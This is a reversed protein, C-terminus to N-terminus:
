EIDEAGWLKNRGNRPCGGIKLAGMVRTGLIERRTGSSEAAQDIIVATDVSGLRGDVTDITSPERGSTTCTGVYYVMM